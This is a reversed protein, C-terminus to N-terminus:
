CKTDRFLAKAMLVAGEISSSVPVNNLEFGEILMQYKDENPVYAIMPKDESQCISSLRGGLEVSIGPSYPLVLILICDIEPSKSLVNAAALFDDDVASGTLDIPNLLSAIPQISSTFNERIMQKTEESLHPVALGYESCKDVALVGHGGSVTIIGIRSGSCTQYSNLSECYSILELENRAELINYQDMVDSFVEYDGAISATHSSVTDVGERSKGGKIVIVPKPCNKAAMVFKRGEDREFGEIYFVIVKTNEDNALYNLLDIERILAKNGISVGLSLGIGQGAFKVMHDVMVGGSQSVFAINGSDPQIIREAPLFLTDIKSPSFIGLCNPGIFPFNSEKAMDVMREQLEPRGSEAFGGSIIVAGGVDKKICNEIIGPVYDARAAIVALDISDPIETVDRYVVERKVIGGKPNVPYVTIPYRLRNKNYIVNAPHSDNRSSLGIVAMTKAKFIPDLNM